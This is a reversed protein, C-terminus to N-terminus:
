PAVNPNMSACSAPKVRGRNGRGDVYVGAHMVLPQVIVDGDQRVDVEHDGRRLLIM